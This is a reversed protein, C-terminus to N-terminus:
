PAAAAAALTSSQPKGNQAAQQREALSFLSYAGVVYVTIRILWKALNKQTKRKRRM